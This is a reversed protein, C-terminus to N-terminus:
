EVVIKTVHRIEHTPHERGNDWVRVVHEGRQNTKIVANDIAALTIETDGIIRVSRLTQAALVDRLPQERADGKWLRERDGTVIVLDQTPARTSIRIKAISGLGAVAREGVFVGLTVRGRDVSLRLESDPYTTTPTPLELFRGDLADARVFTWQAPPASVLSSLSMAHDITVTRPADDLAIEIQPGSAVPPTKERCSFAGLV